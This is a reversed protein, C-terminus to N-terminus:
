DSWVHCRINNLIAWSPKNWIQKNSFTRARVTMHGNVSLVRDKREGKAATSANGWWYSWYLRTWKQGTQHLTWRWDRVDTRWINHKIKSSSWTSAICVGFVPLWPHSQIWGTRLYMQSNWSCCLAGRSNGIKDANQNKTTPVWLLLRPNTRNNLTLPHEKFASPYNHEEHEGTLLGEFLSTFM